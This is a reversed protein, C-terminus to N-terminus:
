KGLVMKAFSQAAFKLPTNKLTILGIARKPMDETLRLECLNGKDIEEQVFERVVCGVGLGLKVFDIILDLSGLEIIPDTTIGKAKFFEDVQIRSSSLKELMILPMAAIQEPTFEEQGRKIYFDKNCVFCDSISLCPEVDIYKDDVPMNIFGIDTKGNKLLAVTESSTRNTIKITIEPNQKNFVKIHKLLFYKCITDNAGITISGFALEKIQNFKQEATNILEQAQEIYNYIMKGEYTLEMGKSTRIFLKGGMQQELQKISQSIAPQSIYLEQAAKTLSGCKSVIYFVRYLELNILM